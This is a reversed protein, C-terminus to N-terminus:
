TECYNRLGKKKEEEEEIQKGKACYNEVVSLCKLVFCVKKLCFRKYFGFQVVCNQFLDGPFEFALIRSGQVRWATTGRGLKERGEELGQLCNQKVKLIEHLVM